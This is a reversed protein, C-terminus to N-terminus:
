YATGNVLVYAQDFGPTTDLSIYTWDCSWRIPNTIVHTVDISGGLGQDGGTITLSSGDSAFVASGGSGPPTITVTWTSPAFSGSFQGHGSAALSAGMVIAATFHSPNISTM